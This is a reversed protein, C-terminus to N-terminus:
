VGNGARWETVFESACWRADDSGDFNQLGVTYVQSQMWTIAWQGEDGIPEHFEVSQAASVMGSQDNYLLAISCYLYNPADESIELGGAALVARFAALYAAEYLEQTPGGEETIEARWSVSVQADVATVGELVSADQGVVQAQAAGTVGFVALAAVFLSRSPFLPSRPM